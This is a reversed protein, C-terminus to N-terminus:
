VRAKSAIMVLEEGRDLSSQLWRFPTLVAGFSWRLAELVTRVLSVRHTVRPNRATDPRVSSGFSGKITNAWGTLSEYTSISEIRFGVARAAARLSDPTFYQFHYPQYGPWGPLRADWAAFNPVAVYARGHEGILSFVTALLARPDPFHEVVHRMIVLDYQGAGVRALHEEPTELVVPLGYRDSVAHAVAPSIDLGSVSHGAEALLHMLAGSGPGIELVRAREELQLSKMARRCNATQYIRAFFDERQAFADDFYELQISNAESVLNSNNVFAHGCNECQVLAFHPSPSIAQVVRGEGCAKCLTM